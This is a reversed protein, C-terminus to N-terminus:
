AVGHPQGTGIRVRPNCKSMTATPPDRRIRVQWIYLFSGLYMYLGGIAFLGAAALPPRGEKKRYQVAAGGAVTAIMANRHYSLFTNDHALRVNWRAMVAPSPANLRNKAATSAHRTRTIVRVQWFSFMAKVVKVSVKGPGVPRTIYLEISHLM